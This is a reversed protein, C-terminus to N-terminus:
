LCTSRAARRQTLSLETPSRLASRPQIAYWHYHPEDDVAGVKHDPTLGLSHLQQFLQSKEAFPCCNPVRVALVGARIDIVIPAQQAGTTATM